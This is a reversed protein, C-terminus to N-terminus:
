SAAVFTFTPWAAAVRLVCTALGSPEASNFTELATQLAEDVTSVRDAQFVALNGKILSALRLEGISEALAIGEVFEGEAREHDGTLMSCLCAVLYTWARRERSHLKEAIEREREVYELGAAFDGLNVADEGLFELGMAQAFPV